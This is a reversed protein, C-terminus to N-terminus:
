FIAVALCVLCVVFDIDLSFKKEIMQSVMKFCIGTYACIKGFFALWYSADYADALICIHAIVMFLFVCLSIIAPLHESFFNSNNQKNNEM